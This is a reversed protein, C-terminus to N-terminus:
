QQTNFRILQLSRDEELPALKRDPKHGHLAAKFLGLNNKTDRQTPDEKSVIKGLARMVRQVLPPLHEIQDHLVISEIQLEETDEKELATLVRLWRDPVGICFE